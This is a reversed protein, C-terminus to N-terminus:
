GDNYGSGVEIEYDHLHGYTQLLMDCVFFIHVYFEMKKALCVLM